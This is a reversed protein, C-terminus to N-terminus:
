ESARECEVEDWDGYFAFPWGSVTAYQESRRRDHQKADQGLQEAGGEGQGGVLLCEVFDDVHWEVSGDGICAQQGTRGCRRVREACGRRGRV